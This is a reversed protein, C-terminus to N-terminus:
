RLGSSEYATDIIQTTTMGEVGSIKPERGEQIATTFDAILPAHLNYHPPHQEIQSGAATIVQLNGDNLSETLVRGETGILELRDSVNAAGFYCQLVGTTGGAFRMLLTAAQEAEYDESATVAAQVELPAGLLMNFVDLRHSGIDMLPGGGGQSLVVRWNDRDFRTELGTTALISLPRGLAGTTLLEAIRSVVPYFRRYYAVGLTVGYSRCVDIMQQCENASMAMPKEVLVHKGANASAITHPCHLYVPTAVYIADIDGDAILEDATSYLRSVGFHNGFQALGASDRRCAAVLESQTDRLIADAVRKTAIDGCGLIGWRVPRNM